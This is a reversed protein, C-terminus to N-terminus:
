ALAVARGADISAVTTQEGSCVGGGPQDIRRYCDSDGKGRHARAAYVYIGAGLAPM